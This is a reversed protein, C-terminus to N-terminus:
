AAAAPMGEQRILSVSCRNRGSHKAAYLQQDAKRFIEPFPMCNEFVAGGVSVSLTRQTGDPTFAAGNVSTRIREAVAEAVGPSSGPLFVAFEEGGIRGVIQPKRLAGRIAGAIIKLAEDGRDHGYDDNISKFNDADVVLLAGRTEREASKVEHLYAEVLATFAGRNLVSTLADTSAFQTLQEHALALKRLKSMLFYSAPAVLLLPLLLDALVERQRIVESMADFNFTDVSLSAMMCVATIALTVLYVRGM